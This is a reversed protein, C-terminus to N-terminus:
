STKIIAQCVHIYDYSTFAVSVGGQVKWGQALYNNVQKSLKELAIDLNHKSESAKLVKYESKPRIGKPPPMM